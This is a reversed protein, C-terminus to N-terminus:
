PSGGGGARGGGGQAATPMGLAKKADEVEHPTITWHDENGWQIQDKGMQYINYLNVERYRSAFDLISKNATVSYDISQRFHWVNKPGIPWWMNMDGILKSDLFPISQPTPNGIMETLIAIVNHFAATNRLGGNWWGDYPGGSRM